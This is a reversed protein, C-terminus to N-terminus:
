GCNVGEMKREEARLASQVKNQKRLQKIQEVPDGKTM